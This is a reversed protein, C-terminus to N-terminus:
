EIIIFAAGTQVSIEQLEQMWYRIGIYYIKIGKQKAIELIQQADPLSVQGDSVLTISSGEKMKPLMSILSENIPDEWWLTLEENISQCTDSGRDNNSSFTFLQSNSPFKISKALDWRTPIDSSWLADDSLMSWSADILYIDSSNEKIFNNIKRERESPTRLVIDVQEFSWKDPIPYYEITFRPLKDQPISLKQSIYTQFLEWTANYIEWNDISQPDSIFANIYSEAFQTKPTQNGNYYTQFFTTGDLLTYDGIAIRIVVESIDWTQIESVIEDLKWINGFTINTALIPDRSKVFDEFWQYLDHDTGEETHPYFEKVYTLFWNVIKEWRLWADSIESYYWIRNSYEQMLPLLKEQYEPNLAYTQQFFRGIWPNFDGREDSLMDKVFFSPLHYTSLLTSERVSERLEAVETRTQDYVSECIFDPLLAIIDDSLHNPNDIYWM